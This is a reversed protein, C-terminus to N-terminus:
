AHQKHTKRAMVIGAIGWWIWATAGDSWTHAFLNNISLGILSALLATAIPDQKITGWLRIVILIIISLFTALGFYGIQVALQLYFNETYLQDNTGESARGAAELGSGFPHTKLKDYGLTLARLHGENSSIFGTNGQAPVGHLLIVDFSSPLKHNAALVIIGTLGLVSIGTIIFRVLGKTLLMIVIIIGIITALWAGRSQTGYLALIDILFIAAAFIKKRGSTAFFWWLSLTIPFILYSGFQNPGWLTSMIRITHSNEILYYAPNPGGFPGYGFHTLIDHPLVFAQLVGICGTIGAPILVLKLLETVTIKTYLQTLSLILYLVLFALNIKLGLVGAFIATKFNLIIVIHILTFFSLLWAFRDSLLRKRMAADNLLLAVTASAMGILILEKWYRFLTTLSSPAFSGLYTIIFAHFPLGIAIAIFGYWIWQELKKPKTAAKVM